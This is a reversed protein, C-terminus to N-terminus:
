GDVKWDVVVVGRGRFWVEGGGGGGAGGTIREAYDWLEVARRGRAADVYEAARGGGALGGRAGRAGEDYGRRGAPHHLYEGVM